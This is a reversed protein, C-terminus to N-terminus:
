WWGDRHQVSASAAGTITLSNAGPVLRPWLSAALVNDEFADNGSSDVVTRAKLDVLLSSGGGLAQSFRVDAGGDTNNVLAPTGGNGAITVTARASTADGSNTVSFTGSGATTELPGYGVPDLAVFTCFCYIAGLYLSRLNVEMNGRPRGFFRLTHDSPGIGPVYVDLQEDTSAPKWAGKLV